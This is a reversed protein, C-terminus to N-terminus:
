IKKMSWILIINMSLLDNIYQKINLVRGILTFVANVSAVMGVVATAAGVLDCINLATINRKQKQQQWERFVRM